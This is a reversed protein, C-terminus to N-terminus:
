ALIARVSGRDNEGVAPRFSLHDVTAEALAPQYAAATGMNRPQHVARIHPNERALRDALQGTGDTSGDDIILIEYETLVQSAVWVIDAVSGELNDVENYALFVSIRRGTSAEYPMLERFDTTMTRM